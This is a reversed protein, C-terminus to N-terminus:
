TINPGLSSSEDSKGSGESDWESSINNYVYLM